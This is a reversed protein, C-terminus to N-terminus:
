WRLRLRPELEGSVALSRATEDRPQIQCLLLGSVPITCVRFFEERWCQTLRIDILGPLALGQEAVQDDFGCKCCAGEFGCKCRAGEFRSIALKYGSAPSARVFLPAPDLGVGSPWRGPRRTCAGCCTPSTWGPGIPCWCLM